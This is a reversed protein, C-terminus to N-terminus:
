NLGMTLPIGKQPNQRMCLSNPPKEMTTQPFVFITGDRHSSQPDNRRSRELSVQGPSRVYNRECLESEEEASTELPGEARDM